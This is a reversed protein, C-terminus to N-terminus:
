LYEGLIGWLVKVQTKGYLSRVTKLDAAFHDELWKTEEAITDGTVPLIEGVLDGDREVIFPRPWDRNPVYLHVGKNRSAYEGNYQALREDTKESVDWPSIKDRENGQVILDAAPSGCLHCFNQEENFEKRKKVLDCIDSSCTRITKTPVTRGVNCKIYPGVYVRYSSSM